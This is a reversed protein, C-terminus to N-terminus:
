FHQAGNRTSVATHSVGGAYTANIVRFKMQTVSRFDQDVRIDSKPKAYDFQLLALLRYIKSSPNYVGM